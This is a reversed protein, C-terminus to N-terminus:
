IVCNSQSPDRFLRATFYAHIDFCLALGQRRGQDPVVGHDSHELIGKIQSDVTIALAHMGYVFVLCSSPSAISARPFRRTTLERKVVKVREIQVFPVAIDRKTSGIDLSFVPLATVVFIVLLHIDFIIDVLVLITFIALVAFLVISSSFHSNGQSAPLSSAVEYWKETQVM